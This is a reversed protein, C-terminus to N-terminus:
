YNIVTKRLDIGKYYESHTFTVVFENASHSLILSHLIGSQHDTVTTIGNRKAGWSGRDPIGDDWTQFWM